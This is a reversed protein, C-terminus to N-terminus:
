ETSRYRRGVLRSSRSWQPSTALKLDRTNQKGATPRSRGVRQQRVWKLHHHEPGTEPSGGAAVTARGPRVPGVHLRFGARRHQCRVPRRRLRRRPRGAADVDTVGSPRLRRRRRAVRRMRSTLRDASLSAVGERHGLEQGITSLRLPRRPRGVLQHSTRQAQALQLREVGRELHGRLQASYHERRCRSLRRGSLLRGGGEGGVVVAVAVADNSATSWSLLLMLRAHKLRVGQGGEALVRHEGGGVVGGSGAADVVGVVVVIGAGEDGGLRRQEVREPWGGVM